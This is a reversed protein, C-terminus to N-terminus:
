KNAYAPRPNPSVWLNRYIVDPVSAGDLGSRGVPGGLYLVHPKPDYERGGFHKGKEYIDEGNPNTGRIIRVNFFNNRWSAEWLYTESPDFFVEEREAGETDAQDGHTIIRWAVIGPPDGRKEVTMRRDNTIIDDYGQASCMIKTKGGKTNFIVNTTIVSMECQSCTELLEYSIHSEHALLKLGVGPIWQHPGVIHGFKTKGQTLPDYLENGKMFGVSDPAIFTANTRASWPGVTGLLEPRAQWSHMEGVNLEGQVDHTTTSAGAPVLGSQYVRNGASNYVEFRYSLPQGTNAFKLSSNGVVLTVGQDPRAGNLPSQPTPATAKLTSGDPNANADGPIASSPTSPTPSSKGCAVAVAVACVVLPVLCFRRKM